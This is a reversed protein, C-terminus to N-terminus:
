FFTIPKNHISANSVCVAKIEPLPRNNFLYIKAGCKETLTYSNM